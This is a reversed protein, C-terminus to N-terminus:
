QLCKKVFDVFEPSWKGPETLGSAPNNQVEMAVLAPNKRSIKYPPEGEAMEIVTIGFSWIDTKSTYQSKQLVEPSMWCPTGIYTQAKDLTRVLKASVGFDGLKANGQVDLLINAAKIDRHIKKTTHLFVM